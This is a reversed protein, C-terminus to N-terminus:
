AEAKKANTILALKDLLWKTVIELDAFEWRGGWRESGFVVRPLLYYIGEHLSGILIILADLDSKRERFLVPIANPRGDPFSQGAHLRGDRCLWLKSPSNGSVSLNFDHFSDGPIVEIESECDECQAINSDAEFMLGNISSCEPCEQIRTLADEVKHQWHEAKKLDRQLGLINEEVADRHRRLEAIQNKATM